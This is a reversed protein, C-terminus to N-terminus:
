LKCKEPDQTSDMELDQGGPPLSWGIPMIGGPPPDSNSLGPSMEYCLVREGKIARLVLAEAGEETTGVEIEYEFEESFHLDDLYGRGELEAFLTDADEEPIGTVYDSLVDKRYETQFMRIIKALDRLSDMAKVAKKNEINKQMGPIAMAAGVAIIVVVLIMELLTAGKTKIM